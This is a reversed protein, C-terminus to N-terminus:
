SGELNLVAVLLSFDKWRKLPLFAEVIVGERYCTNGGRRIFESDSHEIVPSVRFDNWSGGPDIAETEETHALCIDYFNRAAPCEDVPM